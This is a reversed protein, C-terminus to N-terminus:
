FIHVVDEVVKEVAPRSQAVPIPPPPVVLNNELPMPNFPHYIPALHYPYFPSPLTPPLYPNYLPPNVLYPNVNGFNLFNHPIM